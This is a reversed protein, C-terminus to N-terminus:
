RTRRLWYESASLLLQLAVDTWLASDLRRRSDASSFLLMLPALVLQGIFDGYMFSFIGAMGVLRGTSDPMYHQLIPSVLAASALGASILALMGRPADISARQSAGRALWVVLAYLLWPSLSMTLSVGGFLSRGNQTAIVAMAAWEGLALWGWRRSPTLWLMGLRFGAPLFWLLHAVSALGLWAALYLLSLGPGAQM